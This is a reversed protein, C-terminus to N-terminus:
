GPGTRHGGGGNVSQRDRGPVCGSKYTPLAKNAATCEEPSLTQWTKLPRIGGCWGVM